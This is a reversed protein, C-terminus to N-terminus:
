ILYQQQRADTVAMNWQEDDPGDILEAAEVAGANDLTVTFDAVAQLPIHVYDAWLETGGPDALDTCVLYETRVEIYRNSVTVGFLRNVRRVAADPVKVVYLSRTVVAYLPGAVPEGPLLRAWRTDFADSDQVDGGCDGGPGVAPDSRVWSGDAFPDDAPLDTITDFTRIPINSKREIM